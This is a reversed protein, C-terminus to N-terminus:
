AYDKDIKKKIDAVVSSIKALDAGNKMIQAFQVPTASGGEEAAEGAEKSEKKIQKAYAEIHKGTLRDEPPFIEDSAPVDIGTDIIGKLAAYTRSMHTRLGIDAVGETLGAKAAKKGLLYGVLYACPVNGTGYKWGYTKELDKSTAAALIMDGKLRANTAQCTINKVTPRIVVRTRGSTLLSRRLYFNTKGERRRRFAVRYNPGKAM